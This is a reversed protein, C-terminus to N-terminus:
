DNEDRERPDVPEFRPPLASPGSAKYCLTFASPRNRGLPEQRSCREHTPAHKWSAPGPETAGTRGQCIGPTEGAHNLHPDWCNRLDRNMWRMFVEGSAYPPRLFPWASAPWVLLRDSCM